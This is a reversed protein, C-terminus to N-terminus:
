KFKSRLLAFCERANTKAEEETEFSPAKPDHIEILQLPIESLFPSAACVVSQKQRRREKCSSIFLKDKARTIAVYFLRREEEIDGSEELSRNHPIIGAEAGAIFVVPFELGKAAHITSINVKGKGSEDDRSDNTILSIRNLYAFLSPDDNDPDNEWLNIMQIFYEINAYKRRATKEESRHEVVLYTWYDIASFLDKVQGSLSKTSLM